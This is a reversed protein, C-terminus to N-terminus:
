NIKILSSKKDNKMNKRGNEPDYSTRKIGPLSKTGLFHLAEKSSVTIGRLSRQTLISPFYSTLGDKWLHPICSSNKTCVLSRLPGSLSSLGQCVTYKTRGWFLVSMSPQHIHPLSDGYLALFVM